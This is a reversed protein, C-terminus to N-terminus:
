GYIDANRVQGKKGEGRKGGVQENCAVWYEDRKTKKRPM